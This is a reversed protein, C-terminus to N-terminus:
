KASSMPTQTKQTHGVVGMDDAPLIDREREVANRVIKSCFFFWQNQQHRILNPQESPTFPPSPPRPDHLIMYIHQNLASPLHTTGLGTVDLSENAFSDDNGLGPTGASVKAAHLSGTKLCFTHAQTRLKRM